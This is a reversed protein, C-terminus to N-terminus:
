AGLLAIAGAGTAASVAGTIPGHPAAWDLPVGQGARSPKPTKPKDTRAASPPTPDTPLNTLNLNEVM